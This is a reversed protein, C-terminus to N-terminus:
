NTLACAQYAHPLRNSELWAWVKEQIGATGGISELVTSVAGHPAPAAGSSCRHGFSVDLRGINKEGFYILHNAAPQIAIAGLCNVISETQQQLLVLEGLEV